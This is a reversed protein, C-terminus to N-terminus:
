EGAPGAQQRKNKRKLLRYAIGTLIGGLFLILLIAAACHAFFMDPLILIVPDTIPDFLWYDNQFFLEHFRVFFAEWDLAACVGLVIPVLFTLLSILKLGGYERRPLKRCLLILGVIGSVVCLIQLAVFIRKVEKFHIEAEDSMPFDPFELKDVGKILLNYDILADYNERILEESYGTEAELDLYDIDFYYICRLNLVLVVSLCVFFLFGVLGLLLDGIRSRIGMRLGM